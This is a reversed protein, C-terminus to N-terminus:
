YLLLYQFLLRFEETIPIKNACTSTSVTSMSVCKLHHALALNFTIPLSLLRGMDHGEDLQFRTNFRIPRQHIYDECRNEDAEEKHELSGIFPANEESYVMCEDLSCYNCCCGCAQETTSKMTVNHNTDSSSSSSQNILHLAKELRSIALDHQGLEIYFAASNNLKKANLFM